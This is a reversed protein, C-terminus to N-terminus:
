NRSIQSLHSLFEARANENNRFEGLMASTRMKANQKEVGRMMMCFHQAEIIVACGKANVVNMICEAIETTLNEQIQLRRSFHDIIRAVKSIGLVRGQPLYAVHCKGVFPLLHHECLSYLEVNNLIVMEKASSEFIADNIVEDLNQHYGQTLFQWAKAARKPTDLLGERSLDEGCSEIIKAFNNEISTNAPFKKLITEIGNKVKPDEYLM